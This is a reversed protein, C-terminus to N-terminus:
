LRRRFEGPHASQNRDFVRLATTPLRAGTAAARHAARHNLLIGLPTTEMLAWADSVGRLAATASPFLDKM